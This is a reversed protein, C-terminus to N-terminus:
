AFAPLALAFSVLLALAFLEDLLVGTLLRTLAPVRVFVLVAALFVVVLVAFAVLAPVVVFLVPTRVALGRLGAAFFALGLRELM